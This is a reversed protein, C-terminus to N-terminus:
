YIHIFDFTFFLTRTVFFHWVGEINWGIYISHNCREMVHYLTALISMWVYLCDVCTYKDLIILVKRLIKFFRGQTPEYACFYHQIYLKFTSQRYNDIMSRLFTMLFLMPCIFLGSLWLYYFHLIEITSTFDYMACLVRHFNAYWSVM